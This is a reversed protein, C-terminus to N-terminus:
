QHVIAADKEEPSPCISLTQLPIGYLLEDIVFRRQVLKSKEIALSLGVYVVTGQSDSDVLFFHSTSLQRYHEVQKEVLLSNSTHHCSSSDEEYEESGAMHDHVVQQPVSASAVREQDVHGAEVM